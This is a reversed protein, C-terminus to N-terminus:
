VENKRMVKGLIERILTDKMFVLMAFYVVVGTSIQIFSSKISPTLFSTEFFICGTM